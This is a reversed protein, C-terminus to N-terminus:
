DPIDSPGFGGARMFQFCLQRLMSTDTLAGSVSGSSLQLRM